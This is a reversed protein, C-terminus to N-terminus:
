KLARVCTFGIADDKFHKLEVSDFGAKQLMSAVQDDDYLNFGYRTFAMDKIDHKPRFAIVVCGRDKCIRYLESCAQQPHEWFYITNQTCIRDFTQDAFPLAEISAKHIKIRNKKAFSSFRKKASDIMTDSLEVGYVTGDGVKDLLTALSDGGGFGIDLVSESKKPALMDITTSLMVANTSNMMRATLRGLPGDPRSLHKALSKSFLRHLLTLM